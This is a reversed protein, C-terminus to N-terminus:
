LGALYSDLQEFTGIFGKRINEHNQSYTIREEETAAYPSGKLTLTTEGDFETLSFKSMVQLPWTSSLPHRTLGGNEDSFSNIFVMREPAVVEQYEFKGWMEKGVPGRLGYLFVGGPRLDMRTVTMTYGAPGWWQKLREPETWAKWVMERPADFIRKIVLEQNSVPVTDRSVSIKNAM